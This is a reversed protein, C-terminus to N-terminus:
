AWSITRWVCVCMCVSAWGIYVCWGRTQGGTTTARSALTYYLVHNMNILSKPDPLYLSYTFIININTTDKSIHPRRWAYVYLSVSPTGPRKETACCGCYARQYKNREEFTQETEPTQSGTWPYPNTYTHINQHAYAKSGLPELTYLPHSCKNQKYFPRWAFLQTSSTNQTRSTPRRFKHHTIKTCCSLHALGHHQQKLAFPTIPYICCATLIYPHSASLIIHSKLQIILSYFIWM